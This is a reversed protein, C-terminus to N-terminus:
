NVSADHERVKMEITVRHLIYFLDKYELYEKLFLPDLLLKALEYSYSFEFGDKCFDWRFQRIM